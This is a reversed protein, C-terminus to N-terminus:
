AGLWSLAGRGVEIYAAIVVVFYIGTALLALLSLLLMVGDRELLAVAACLMSVAPLSNTFPAVPMPLALLVGGSLVLLGIRRQTRPGETWRTLRPRSFWRLWRMLWHCARALRSWVKASPRLEHVRHPLWPEDRGALMQWGLAALVTGGLGALPGLPIPQLYPLCLVLTILGFSSADLQHLVSGLSVPETQAREASADLLDLLAQHRDM